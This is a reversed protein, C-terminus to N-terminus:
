GKKPLKIIYGNEWVDPFRELERTTKNLPELLTATTNPCAMFIEPPIGDPGAAKKKLQKIAKVIETHM